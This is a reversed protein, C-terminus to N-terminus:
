LLLCPLNLSPSASCVPTSYLRLHPTSDMQKGAQRHLGGVPSQGRSDVKIERKAQTGGKPVHECMHDWSHSVSRGLRTLAWVFSGARQAMARGQAQGRMVKVDGCLQTPHSIAAAVNIAAVTVRM